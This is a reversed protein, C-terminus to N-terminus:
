SLITSFNLVNVPMTQGRSLDLTSVSAIIGFCNRLDIALGFEDRLAALVKVAQTVIEPGIGDGPLVLINKSM